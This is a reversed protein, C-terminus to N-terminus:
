PKSSSRQNLDQDANIQRSPRRKQGTGHLHDRQNAPAVKPADLQGTESEKEPKAREYSTAPDPAQEKSAPRNQSPMIFEVM